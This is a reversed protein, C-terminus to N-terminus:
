IQEKLAMQPLELRRIYYGFSGMISKRLLALEQGNGKGLLFDPFGFMQAVMKEQKYLVGPVGVFYVYRGKKNQRRFFLIHKYQYYGHLLFSNEELNRVSDDIRHLETPLVSIAEQNEEFPYCVSYRQKLKGWLEEMHDTKQDSVSEKKTWLKSKEWETKEKWAVEQKESGERNSVEEKLVKRKEQVRIDDAKVKRKDEMGTSKKDVTMDETNETKVKVEKQKFQEQAAYKQKLLEQMSYEQEIRGQKSYEQELLKQTVCERELPKQTVDEKEQISNEVITNEKMKSIDPSVKKKMVSDYRFGNESLIRGSIDKTDVLELWITDRYPICVNFEGTRVFNWDDGTEVIEDQDYLFVKYCIDNMVTISIQSNGNMSINKWIAHGSLERNQGYSNWRYLYMINRGMKGREALLKEVAHQLKGTVTKDM